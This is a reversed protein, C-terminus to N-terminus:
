LGIYPRAKRITSDLLDAAFNARASQGLATRKLKKRQESYELSSWREVGRAGDQNPYLMESLNEQAIITLALLVDAQSATGTPLGAVYVIEYQYPQQWQYCNCTKNVCSFNLYGFTDEFIFVCGTDSHFTCNQFNDISKLTASKISSVYGYDTVIFNNTQYPYTGTITTPLLFTGLYNTVRKEAILYAATRQAPSTTGTQGGYQVFIDDDLIIPSTYPYINM